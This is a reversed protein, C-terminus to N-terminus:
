NRRWSNLVILLKNQPLETYFTSFDITSVSTAKRRKNLGNMADTVQKNNQVVWFTNVSTFFRCEHNYTQIQRSLLRFISTITSALPKISSKPSAIIFRAKIPNKYMNPM